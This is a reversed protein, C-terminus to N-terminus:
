FADGIFPLMRGWYLVMFWSLLSVAGAIRFAIPTVDGLRLTELRRGYFMEFLMANVGAVALFLLKYYFAVNHVYQDPAGVFFIVGTIVNIAFGLIGYPLLKRLDALPVRKLFGLLRVDILGVIGVLMALGVFHLTECIPWVWPYVRTAESLQTGKLWVLADQLTM